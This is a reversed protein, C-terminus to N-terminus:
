TELTFCSTLKLHDAWGTSLEFTGPESIEKCDFNWFRLQKETVTFVVDQKEGPELSVKRYDVAARVASLDGEVLVFYKGPCVTEAHIIDVDATKVMIDAATIGSSVTKFEVLGIAKGM